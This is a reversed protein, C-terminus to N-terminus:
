RPGRIQENCGFSGIPARGVTGRVAKQMGKAVPFIHTSIGLSLCVPACKQFRRCTEITNKQKGSTM